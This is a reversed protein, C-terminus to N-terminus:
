VPRAPPTEVKKGSKLIELHNRLLGWDFAAPHDFNPEYNITLDPPPKPLYYSDQHLLGVRADNVQHLVKQTFTTKGSGSGGAIGIIYM